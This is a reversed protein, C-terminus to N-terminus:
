VIVILPMLGLVEEESQGKSFDLITHSQFIQEFGKSPPRRVARRHGRCAGSTALDPRTESTNTKHRLHSAEKTITYTHGLQSHPDRKIRGKHRTLIAPLFDCARLVRFIDMSNGESCSPRSPSWMQLYLDRRPTPCVDTVPLFPSSWLSQLASCTM